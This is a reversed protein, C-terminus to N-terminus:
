GGSMIPDPLGDLGDGADDWVGAAAAPTGGMRLGQMRRGGPLRGFDVRMSPLPPLDDFLSDQLHMTTWRSGGAGAPPAGGPGGEWGWPALTDDMAWQDDSAEDDLYEEEEEEEEEEEDDMPVVGDQPPTIALLLLLM